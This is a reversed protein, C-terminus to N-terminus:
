ANPVLKLYEQHKDKNCSANVIMPLLLLVVLVKKM